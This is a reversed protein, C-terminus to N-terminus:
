CLKDNRCNGWHLQRLYWEIRELTDLTDPPFQAHAPRPALWPGLVNAWLGVAIIWLLLRTRRDMNSRRM